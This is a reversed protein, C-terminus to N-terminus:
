AAPAVKGAPAVAAVKLGRMRAIVEDRPGFAIANGFSMVLLQDIHGLV